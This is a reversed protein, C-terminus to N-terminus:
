LPKMAVLPEGKWNLSIFAFLRHEVLILKSTGPPYHCVVLGIDLHHSLQQLYYKWTRSLSHSADSLRLLPTTVRSLSLSSRAKTHKSQQSQGILFAASVASISKRLTNGFM